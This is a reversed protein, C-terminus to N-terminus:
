RDLWCLTLQLLHCSKCLWLTFKLRGPALLSGNRVIFDKYYGCSISADRGLQYLRSDGCDDISHCQQELIQFGSVLFTDFLSAAVLCLGGGVGTQVQSRVLM